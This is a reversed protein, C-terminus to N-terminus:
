NKLHLTKNPLAKFFLAPEDCNAINKAEYGECIDRLKTKWLAVSNEDVSNSEGCSTKFSINYRKRFCRLWGNSASFDDLKLIKAIKLAQEQM